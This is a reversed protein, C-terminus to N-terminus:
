LISIKEAIQLFIEKIKEKSIKNELRLAVHKILDDQDRYHHIKLVTDFIKEALLKDEKSLKDVAEFLDSASEKEELLQEPSKAPSGAFRSRRREGDVNVDEVQGLTVSLASTNPRSRKRVESPNLGARWLAQDWSGFISHAAKFLSTGSVAPGCHDEILFKMFHSHRLVSSCNLEYEHNNFLRIYEIVKEESKECPSGSRRIHSLKFGSYKLVDDWGGIMKQGLRHIKTGPEVQGTYNYIIEKTEESSDKALSSSNIPIDFEHLIKLIRAVSNKRWSFPYLRVSSVSIGAEALARDWSGFFRYAAGFLSKGTRGKGIRQEIIKKTTVSQDHSIEKCNLPVGNKKLAHIASVIKTRTWFPKEKIEAVNIGAKNLAKDWSGLNRRAADHLASGTTKKGTIGLLTKSTARKRDRCIDRSMLTHNAKKLEKICKVVLMSTWFKNYAPKSAKIECADLALNWSGFEYCASRYLYKRSCPKGLRASIIPCVVPSKNLGFSRLTIRRTSKSLDRIMQIIMKRNLHDDSEGELFPSRRSKIYRKKNITIRQAPM